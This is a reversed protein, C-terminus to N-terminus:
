KKECKWGAPLTTTWGGEPADSGCYYMKVTPRDDRAVVEATMQDFRDQLLVKGAATNVGAITWVTGQYKPTSMQWGPLIVFHYVVSANTGNWLQGYVFVDDEGYAHSDTRLATVPKWVAGEVEIAPDEYQWVKMTWSAPFSTQWDAPTAYASGVYLKYASAGAETWMEDARCQVAEATGTFFWYTGAIRDNEFDLNMGPEIVAMFTSNVNVTDWAQVVSWLRSDGVDMNTLIPDSPRGFPVTQVLQYSGLSSCDDLAASTTAGPMATAAPASAPCPIPDGGKVLVVATPSGAEPSCAQTLQAQQQPSLTATPAPGGPITITAGCAALVLSALVLISFVFYKPTLNKNM